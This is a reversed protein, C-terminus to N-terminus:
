VALLKRGTGPNEIEAILAYRLEGTQFGAYDTCGGFGGSLKLGKVKRVRLPTKALVALGNNLGPVVALGPALRVGCADVQHVEAYQLGSDKLGTVYAEAMEPLPNVEQLLLLDPQVVSLQHFQLDLRAQRAEKSESAKVTLGSPELGHLTNYTLVRFRSMPTGTPERDPAPHISGTCGSASAYLVLVIVAIRFSLRSSTRELTTDM